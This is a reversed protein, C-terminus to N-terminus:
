AITGTFQKTENPSLVFALAIQISQEFFSKSVHVDINNIAFNKDVNIVENWRLDVFIGKSKVEGGTWTATVQMQVNDGSFAVQPQFEISVKAAGGTVVSVAGKLKDMFGM